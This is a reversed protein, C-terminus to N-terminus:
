VLQSVLRNLEWNQWPMSTENLANLLYQPKTLPLDIGITYFKIWGECQHNDSSSRHYLLRRGVNIQVEWWPAFSEKWKTNKWLLLVSSCFYGGCTKKRQKLNKTFVEKVIYCGHETVMHQSQFELEDLLVLNPWYSLATAQSEVILAWHLLKRKSIFCWWPKRSNNEVAIQSIEAQTDIRVWTDRFNQFCCVLRPKFTDAWSARGPDSVLILSNRSPVFFSHSVIDGQNPIM